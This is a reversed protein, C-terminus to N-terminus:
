RRQATEALSSFISLIVQKRGLNVSGTRRLLNNINEWVGTWQDLPAALLLRQMLAAEGAIRDEPMVGAAGARIMRALWATLLAMMTEFSQGANVRSLQDGLAHLAALDLRPLPTLLKIMERFQDVGGDRLLALAHGPSGQALTVALKMEDGALGPFHVSIVAAMDSDNLPSLMLKRCRSRITPLLRGPSHSILLFVSNKPPEELIKLLANAASINMDDVSDVICVRWGGAGASLSFFDMAKRAEDVPLVNQIRGSKDVPRRLLLLDPHSLAKVLHFVPEDPAIALDPPVSLGAGHKLLTRAMRYALTAKGIGRPGSLLWAHHMRGSMIASAAQAMAEHHGALDLTERPHPFGELRDSEIEEKKSAAARRAM